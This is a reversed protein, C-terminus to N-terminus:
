KILFFLSNFRKLTKSISSISFAVHLKRDITILGNEQQEMGFFPRFYQNSFDKSEFVLFLVNGIFWGTTKGISESL